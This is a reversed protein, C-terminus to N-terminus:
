YNLIIPSQFLITKKAFEYVENLTLMIDEANDIVYQRDMLRSEDLEFTGVKFLLTKDIVDNIKFFLYSQSFNVFTHKIFFKSKILVKILKVCSSIFSYYKFENLFSKKKFKRAIIILKRVFIHM